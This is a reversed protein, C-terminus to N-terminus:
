WPYLQMEMESKIFQAFPIINKASNAENLAAFYEDRREFHVMTWPYGGSVLM